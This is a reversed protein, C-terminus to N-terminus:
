PDSFYSSADVTATGGDAAVTQSPITGVKTPRRNPQIVTITFTQTATLNGTDTATVTVTVTGAADGAFTVASGVM